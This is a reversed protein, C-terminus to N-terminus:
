YLMENMCKTHVRTIYSRFFTYSFLFRSAYVISLIPVSACFFLIRPSCFFISFSDVSILRIHHSSIFYFFLSFCHLVACGFLLTIKPRIIEMNPHASFNHCYSRSCVQLLCMFMMLATAYVIASHMVFYTVM